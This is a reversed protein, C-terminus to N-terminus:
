YTAVCKGATCKPKYPPMPCACATPACTPAAKTCTAEVETVWRKTGSTISCCRFCCTTPGVLDLSTVACEADVTCATEIKPLAIPGADVSGTSALARGEPNCGFSAAVCAIAILDSPERM